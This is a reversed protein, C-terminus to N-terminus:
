IKQPLRGRYIAFLIASTMTILYIPFAMESFTTTKFALFATLASFLGGWFTGSSETEPHLWAKKLTPFAALGDSLIALLVAVAPENTTTWMIIALISFAGCIYDLKELKWYANPNVFSAIFVMLPSLGSIFVPIVAFSVGASLSASTAIFPVTAWLFWTIRNPKTKGRITDRVYFLTGFLNVAAGIFVAYPFMISLNSYSSM